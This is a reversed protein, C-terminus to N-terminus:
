AAADGADHVSGYPASRRYGQGHSVMESATLRAVAPDAYEMEHDVEVHASELAHDKIMNPEGVPVPELQCDDAEPGLALQGRVHSFEPHPHLGQPNM